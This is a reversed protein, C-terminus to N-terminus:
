RVVYQIRSLRCQHWSAWCLFMHAVFSLKTASNTLGKVRRSLHIRSIASNNCLAWLGGGGGWLVIEQWYSVPQIDSQQSARGPGQRCAQEGEEENHEERLM